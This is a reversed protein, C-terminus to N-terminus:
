LWHQPDPINIGSGFKKRGPDLFIGSGPDPDADFFKLMRSGLFECFITESGEHDPINMGSGSRSKKVWGLDLPWFPGADPDAVSSIAAWPSGTSGSPILDTGTHSTFNIISDTLASFIRSHMILKLPFPIYKQNKWHQPDPIIKKPDSGPDPDSKESLEPDSGPDPDQIFVYVCVCVCVCIDVCMCMYICVSVCVYM